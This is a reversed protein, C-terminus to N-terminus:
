GRILSILRDILGRATGPESHPVAGLEVTRGSAARLPNDRFLRDALDAGFTESVVKRAASLAMPRTRPSHADSAVFSIMGSGILKLVSRRIKRGAAGIISMSNVQFLIGRMAMDPLKEVVHPNREPHAVIPSIGLLQMRFLIEESEPAVPRPPFEVLAYRESGGGFVGIGSNAILDVDIDPQLLLETGLFLKFDMGERGLLERLEEFRERIERFRGELDGFLHPTVVAGKIGDIIGGEIVELAEEFSSPGDDVGPLLHAHIDIM